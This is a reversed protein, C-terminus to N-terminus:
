VYYAGYTTAISVLSATAEKNQQSQYIALDRMYQRKFEKRRRQWEIELREQEGVIQGNM